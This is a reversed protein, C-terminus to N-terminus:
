SHSRYRYFQVPHALKDDKTNKTTNEQVINWINRMHEDTQNSFKGLFLSVKVTNLSFKFKCTITGKIDIQVDRIM